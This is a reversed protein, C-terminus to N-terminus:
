PHRRSRQCAPDAEHHLGPECWYSPRWAEFSLPHQANALELTVQAPKTPSGLQPQYNNSVIQHFLWGRRQTDYRFITHSVWHNWGSAVGEQYIFAGNNIWLGNSGDGYPDGSGGGDALTVITDNRAALRYTGDPNATFILLARPSPHQVTDQAHHIIVLYDTRGSNTLDGGLYDLAEFGDPILRAVANPLDSKDDRQSPPIENEDNRPPQDAPFPMLDTRWAEFPIPHQADASTVTVDTPDVSENPDVNTFIDNHLLWIHHRTDYHFTVYRTWPRAQKAIGQQITFYRGKIALGNSRNDTYPDGNGQRDSGARMIAADNRAALRYSGDPQAVYILLPRSSPAQASEQPHHLVVLYDTRGSGTLNGGLYDLVKFGDPIRKAISNPIPPKNDCQSPALGARCQQAGPANTWCLFCLLAVVLQKACSM